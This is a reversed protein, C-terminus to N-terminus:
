PLGGPLRRDIERAFRDRRRKAEWIDGMDAFHESGVRALLAVDEIYAALLESTPMEAPDKM